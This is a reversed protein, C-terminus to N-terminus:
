PVVENKIIFMLLYTKVTLFNGEACTRPMEWITEVMRIREMRWMKLIMFRGAQVGALMLFTNGSGSNKRPLRINPRSPVLPRARGM